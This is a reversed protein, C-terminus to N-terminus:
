PRPATSTIQFNGRETYTSPGIPTDTHVTQTRTNRLMLGTQQDLWLEVTQRGNTTGRLTRVQHFHYAPVHTRGVNVVANGVFTLPGSTVTDGNTASTTGRCSQHWSEGARMGARIFVAPPNCSLMTSSDYTTFVFDWTEFTQDAVEALGGDTSCFTWAQWHATSYDIRFTWCGDARYSVTAPMQPGQAHHKPPLTLSENGAGRYLYVGATPRLGAPAVPESSSASQEFRRRAEAISVEHASNRQWFLVFAVGAVVVGLFLAGAIWRRRRHRTGEPRPRM